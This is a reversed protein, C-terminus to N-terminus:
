DTLSGVSAEINAANLRTAIINCWYERIIINQTPVKAWFWWCTPINSKSFHPNSKVIKAFRSRGDAVVYVWANGCESIMEGYDKGYKLNTAADAADISVEILEDFEQQTVMKNTDVAQDSDSQMECSILQCNLYPQLIAGCLPM